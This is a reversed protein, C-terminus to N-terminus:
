PSACGSRARLRSLTANDRYYGPRHSMTGTAPRPAPSPAPPPARHDQRRATRPCTADVRCHAGDHRAFEEGPMLQELHFQGYGILFTQIM